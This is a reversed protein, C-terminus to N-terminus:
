RKKKNKINYNKKNLNWPFQLKLNLSKPLSTIHNKKTPYITKKLTQKLPFKHRFRSRFRRRKKKIKVRNLNLLIYISGSKRYIKPLHTTIKSSRLSHLTATVYDHIQFDEKLLHIYGNHSSFRPNYWHSNWTKNFGLRFGTPHVKQGM